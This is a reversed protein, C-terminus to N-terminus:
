LVGFRPRTPSVYRDWRSSALTLTCRTSLYDERKLGVANVWKEDLAPTERAEVGLEGKARDTVNVEKHMGILVGTGLRQYARQIGLNRNVEVRNGVGAFVCSLEVSGCKFFQVSTALMDSEALYGNANERGFVLQPQDAQVKQTM